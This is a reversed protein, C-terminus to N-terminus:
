VQCTRCYFSSRGAHVRRRIPGGCRRCPHGARDYVFFREQFGGPMGSADHFDSISSGRRRIAEGLVAATAWVVAACERRSLRAAARGPRVGAHFLIENAYINGLGAILAQDMLLNKVPRRRGRALAAFCEPTFAPGAPDVGLGLWSEEGARCLFVAGFRRPDNFVIRRGDDLDILVHDHTRHAAFAAEVRVTGSMGLHLVLDERSGGLGLLLFKGRRGIAAITRGQLREGLDRVVPQRLRADRVAVSVIRRGCVAGRLDRAVTEVEPL